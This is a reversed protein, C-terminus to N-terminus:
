DAEADAESVIHLFVEELSTQTIGWDDIHQIDKNEKLM